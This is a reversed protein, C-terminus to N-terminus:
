DAIKTGDARGRRSADPPVGADLPARAPTPHANSEASDCRTPPRRPTFTLEDAAFREVTGAIQPGLIAGTSGARVPHDYSWVVRGERTVEILRGEASEAILVNGNPLQTQGGHGGSVLPHADTGPFSWTVRKSGPDFELIRSVGEPGPHGGNDFLMIRGNPLPDPDHQAVWGGRALWTFRKEQLDLLGIAYLSRMSVLVQGAEAFAHHEAFDEGIMAVGNAHLADWSEHRQFWPVVVRRAPSEVLADVLSYRGLVEGTASLRVVFDELIRGSDSAFRGAPDRSLTRWRHALTLVSGDELVDVDHHGRVPARWL